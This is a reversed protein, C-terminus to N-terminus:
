FFKKMFAEHRQDAANLVSAFQPDSRLGNLLPDRAIYPYPFFGGEISQRLVRVASVPDGLVSYAQGIKYIAESETVGRENIRKEAAHLIKLGEQSQHKLGFSFAKGIQAHLLSPDLEYARDFHSTAQAGNGLYYEGLGRYFAILSLEDDNPLNQLFKDYQGLYLYSNPMSSNLKVGPDLQRARECEAVSEPLAGAFRYAYGLEWHAEAHNPNAKLTERLLPVAEEVRGTDTFMNAMYILTEIHGPHLSLATQYAKEAKQYQERGGFKFSASASYAKGLNAWMPAYKPNLEASKELMRIAMPFDSKAYLDVGRLYYEYALPDTPLDAKLHGAESPTLNLELGKVIHQAVEDQVILLNKYKLDLASKWLMRKTKVDILECTIRLADGERIFNGTLIADVNLDSAVQQIDVNQNRYKEVSSSPRVTLESVYSLKTVVADALSYGLFDSDTDATLNRFPLIALSRPGQSVLKVQQRQRFLSYGLMLVAIGTVLLGFLLYKAQFWSRVGEPQAKTVTGTASVSTDGGTDEREIEETRSAVSPRIAVVTNTFQQRSAKINAAFRYGRGSVTVIYRNDGPSEGLAKRIMSIQQTLNSEEVFSDPWLARM